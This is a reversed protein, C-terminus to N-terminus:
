TGRGAPTTTGTGRSVPAASEGARVLVIGTVVLIGGALQMATPQQGVLWAAAVVAFLVETLAMFSSLRSGLRQVALIGLLYAVVGTLVVLGLVPVQWPVTRGALQASADDFQLTLLGVAGAALVAVAGVLLGVGLTVVAPLDDHQRAALLFYGASCCAAFLAWLLGAVDVGFGGFPDIVLATGLIAVGAGILTLRSPPQRRGLWLWGVVLIPSTYEVLLAVAVPLTQVASFFGIQAGAVAVLGFAVLHRGHTWVIRGRSPWAAIVVIPLMLLAAGSIRAAVAAQASWGADILSKALPGSAAFAMASTLALVLAGPSAKAAPGAVGWEDGREGAGDALEVTRARRPSM